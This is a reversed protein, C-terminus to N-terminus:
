NQLSFIIEKGPETKLTIIDNEFVNKDTKTGKIKYKAERFINKIRLEGGKEPLISLSVLKGNQKKASVIFAGEARFDNFEIDKWSCPVAPFVEILGNQSQLLMEQLGAAFAFNGELTFPRYTFKSKGTNSQDGNVHFSNPLCFCEAFTKLALSAKEGNKSRACINALWSYTYGTWWDTGKEDLNKLSSSIIQRDLDGNNWDILGLPHIAMLHSFHRHSAQLEYGPAILLKKDNGLAFDPLRSYIDLWHKEHTKDKLESALEASSKFLWRILSLDFNTMDPFWASISNDNMEPSSSIPLKLKGDKGRVLIEEIFEATEKLWPYARERLFKKDGSYKWHLYFHQALWSSVVPSLSYQIWGGMPSGTLTCVGPVCLGDSNFYRKTYAKSTDRIAWLWDLFSLGEELHNSSYCPWYSLQTNLDNHFDGKWPPLKGNDATWVAQLTIPPAGRRSAAGFKYLERYWQRELVQDPVSLSSKNWYTRWWKTHSNLEKNYKSLINSSNISEYEKRFDDKAKNNSITWLGILKEHVYFWKVKVTYIFGNWGTQKYIIENDSNVIEPSPYGLRRLDTGEVSNANSSLSDGGTFPPPIINPTLKYKLNEFMFWGFPKEAHVFTQLSLGDKWLVNSVASFIDLKASLIENINKIGFELAGAPIKTPAAEREYPEDFLKQVISYDKEAVKKQVFSYSFEPLSLEKIPRLDWLDARDLSFRLNNNKNWVLQGILGNGLPLAEDWSASLKNFNFGHKKANDFGANIKAISFLFSIILLAISHKNKM